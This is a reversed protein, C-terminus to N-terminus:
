ETFELTEDKKYFAPNISSGALEAMWQPFYDRVITDLNRYFRIASNIEANNLMKHVTIMDLYDEQGLDEQCSEACGLLMDNRKKNMKFKSRDYNSKIWEM